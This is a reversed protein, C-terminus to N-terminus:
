TFSRRVLAIAGIGCGMLALAAAMAMWTGVGGSEPLKRVAGVVERISDIVLQPQEQHIYHGSDTDKIHRAGPVQSVLDARADVIAQFLINGFEEAIDAPLTGDDVFPTLDYPVDSSLVILPMPKLPAAALVQELNRQHDFRELDPYLALAEDSPLGLLVKWYGWQEDSLATQADYPTYDVLVLGSVDQPYESAYLSSIAGGMSHGVVVYPGREGSAGLLAHLDAVADQLTTPLPVPDSRSPDFDEEGVPLVTGPRDYACVRNTEAIAPLVAQKSPDLTKSWTEARDGGGSVFVVTPSGKGQCEMYMKRGGGIDVLGAFDKSNGSNSKGPNGKGSDNGSQSCALATAAASLVLAVVAALLMIKKLV